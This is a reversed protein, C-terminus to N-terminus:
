RGNRRKERRERRKERRSKSKNSQTEDNNLSDKKDRGFLRKWFNVFGEGINKKEMEECNYIKSIEQKPEGFLGQYHTLNKDRMVRTMFDGFVPLATQSGQGHAGDRFHISRYEGGVWVGGVLKPSIGM